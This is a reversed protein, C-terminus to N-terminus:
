LARGSIRESPKSISIKSFNSINMTLGGMKLLILLKLM